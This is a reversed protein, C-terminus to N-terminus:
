TLLFAVTQACFYSLRFLPITYFHTSPEVRADDYDQETAKPSLM